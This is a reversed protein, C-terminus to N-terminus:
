SPAAPVRYGQAQLEFLRAYDSGAAILEGHTGRETIEGENLVVIQDADTLTSLRHSILLVTRGYCQERLGRQLRHEAEADLGASPEDLVTVDRGGRMYARALAIRQWQGGSLLVGTEPNAKDEENFFMRSLLTNYGAPLTRAVTDIDAYGAAAVIRDHNDRRAIDGIAINEALTLDYEVFDQFVAAIRERLLPPPIDRLDRGDWYIAGRDPDYFRCLLKVLTSKGSGNKGVLATVRGHPIFLNVGRLVWRGDPSYRFWVDRLLIGRTMAPLPRHDASPLDPRARTIAVYHRFALLGEQAAAVQQVLSGAAAQIGAVAQIFMTVDGINVRGTTADHVAWLLGSGAVVATLLNLSGVMRAERLDLQRKRANAAAREARMRDRLFAGIGFLRIEKAAASDVLMNGYFLERRQRRILVALSSARSRALALEACLMAVGSVALAGAMVPSVVLVAGVFGVVSLSGFVITLMGTVIQASMGATAKQAMRIQDLFLPDEFKAIGDLGNLAAYLRDDGLVGVRRELENQLHQSVRPMAASAAVCAAVGAVIVSLAGASSHAILGNILARLLMANALPAGSTVAGVALCAIVTGPAARAALAVATRLGGLRGTM